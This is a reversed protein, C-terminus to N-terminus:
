PDPHHIAGHITPDYATLYDVLAWFDPLRSHNLAEERSLKQGLFPAASLSQGGQILLWAHEDTESLVSRAGFTLNAPYGALEDASSWEGLTADIIVGGEHGCTAWYLAWANGDRLVAGNVNSHRKRCKECDWYSVSRDDQLEFAM